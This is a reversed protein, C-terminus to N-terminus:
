ANKTKKGIKLTSLFYKAFKPYKASAADLLTTDDQAMHLELFDAFVGLALKALPLFYRDQFHENVAHYTELEAMGFRKRHKLRDLFSDRYLSAAHRRYISMVEPIFGIKGAEAHLLHWYWDGPCLDPRFWDPLGDKFRWKYVVTNTQIMNGKILDALYYEEKIGRPLMSSPPFIGPAKGDEFTVGVFHFCMSCHPHQRLFDVQKQLKLPETFYDDGDCLAAYESRCRVFLEHVNNYVQHFNHLLVPRISPYERAYANVINPTGDTSYHDLILHRVPFDTKQALVSEICQSIYKEHNRTMTLVTLLPAEGSVELTAFGGDETQALAAGLGEQDPTLFERDNAYRQRMVDRVQPPLREAFDRLREAALPSTLDAGPATAYWSPTELAHGPVALLEALKERDAGGQALFTRREALPSLPEPGWAAECEQLTTMYAANDLRPWDNNRVQAADLLRLATATNTFRPFLLPPSLRPSADIRFIRFIAGLTEAVSEKSVTDVLHPVLNVMERSWKKQASLVLQSFQGAYRMYRDAVQAREAAFTNQWWYELTIGPKGMVMIPVVAHERTPLQRELFSFFAEQVAVDASEGVILVSRGADLSARADALKKEVAPTIAAQSAAHWLDWHRPAFDRDANPFPLVDISNDVLLASNERISTAVWTASCSHNILLYINSLRDAGNGPRESERRRRVAPPSVRDM